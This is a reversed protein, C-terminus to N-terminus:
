TSEQGRRAAHRARCGSTSDCCSGGARVVTGEKPEIREVWVGNEYMKSRTATATPVTLREFGDSCGFCAVAATIAERETRQEQTIDGEVLDEM